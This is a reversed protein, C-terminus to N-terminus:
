NQQKVLLVRVGRQGAVIVADKGAALVAFAPMTRELALRKFSIGDDTSVLLVGGSTALLIRGDDAVTSAVIAQQLGTEVKAWSVGGDGSRYVNGRLGHVILAGRKGTIGFYSGKYPTAIARFRGAQSDLKLLLGQEGAIYLDDGIKRIAYLNFFNPNDTRDFWPQWSKGGDDTRFILNFAGVVFGTNEDAFWVDLFPNDPGQDAFRQAAAALAPDGKAYAAAMQRGASRGDFQRTWTAGGDKSALVVGDHGVAWGKTASVFHVAVLDSSVPVTAQAWSKGVDGSVLIHGRQGVAVIREGARSLGNLLNHAALPSASAMRDLPDAFEAGMAPMSLLGVLMAAGIGLRSKILKM